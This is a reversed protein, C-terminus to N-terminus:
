DNCIELRNFPFLLGYLVLMSKLPMLGGDFIVDLAWHNM